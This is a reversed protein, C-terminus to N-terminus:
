KFKIILQLNKGDGGADMLHKNSVTFDDVKKAAKFAAESAKQTYKNKNTIKNFTLGISEKVSSFRQQIVYLRSIVFTYVYLAAHNLKNISSKIGFYGNPDEMNVPDNSCYAFMNYSLLEGTIGVIADANVFRGWEPNYFRSQLYYLKTEEDYRYGRYRYPNKFGVTTALSGDISVINGWSDYTYAVVENGNSDILGIIDGQGNRVYYYEVGNLNMSVLNDQTDYSYHITDLGNTELIVKDGLLYYKTTVGNVTKETRIGQDNYKYSINLGEKSISKLQRGEEWTFTYGNYTLPNGIEDYTIAKGDYSTLKDKWNSDDYTYTITKTPNEPM